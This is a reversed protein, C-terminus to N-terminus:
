GSVVPATDPLGVRRKAQAIEDLVCEQQRATVTRARPTQGPGTTLGLQWTTARRELAVCRTAEPTNEQEHHTAATPM